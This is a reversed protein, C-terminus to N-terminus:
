ARGAGQQGGERVEVRVAQEVGGGAFEGEGPGGHGSEALREVEEGPDVGPGVSEERHGDQDLVHDGREVAGVGVPAGGVVQAGPVVGPGGRELEERLQGGDARLEGAVGGCLGCGGTENDLQASASHVRVPIQEGVPALDPGAGPPGLAALVPEDGQGLDGGGHALQDVPRLLLPGAAGAAGDQLEDEGEVQEVM